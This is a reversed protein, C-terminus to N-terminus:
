AGQLVLVVVAEEDLRRDERLRRGVFDGEKLVPFQGLRAGFGKVFDQDLRDGSDFRFEFGANGLWGM